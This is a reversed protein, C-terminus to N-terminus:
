LSAGLESIRHIVAPDWLERPTLGEEEAEEDCQAPRYTLVVIYDVASRRYLIIAAIFILNLWHLVTAHRSNWTAACESATATCVARHASGRKRELMDNVDVVRFSPRRLAPACTM